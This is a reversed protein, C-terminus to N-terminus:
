SLWGRLFSAQTEPFRSSVQVMPSRGEPSSPSMRYGKQMKDLNLVLTTLVELTFPVEGFLSPSGCSAMLLCYDKRIYLGLCLELPPRRVEIGRDRLHCALVSPDCSSVSPGDGFEVEGRIRTDRQIKHM